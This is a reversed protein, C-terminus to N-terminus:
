RKPKNKTGDKKNPAEPPKPSKTIITDVPDYTSEYSDTTTVWNGYTITRYTYIRFGIHGEEIIDEKISPDVKTITKNPIDTRDGVSIDVSKPMDEPYGIIYITLKNGNIVSLVYVNHQYPNRFQFDLFGYAVTADRGVPIYSVPEFHPTREIINMGSLLASNFLTSSVQCIGGGIGPM